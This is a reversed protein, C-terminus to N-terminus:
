VFVKELRGATMCLWESRAISIGNRELTQEVTVGEDGLLVAVDGVAIDDAGTVDVALNDM